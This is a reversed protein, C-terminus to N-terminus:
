DLVRYHLHVVGNTFRHEDVLELEAPRLAEEAIVLTGAREKGLADVLESASRCQLVDVGAKALIDAIVSSDRGSPALIGVTQPM